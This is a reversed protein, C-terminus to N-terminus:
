KEDEQTAGTYRRTTDARLWEEGSREFLTPHLGCRAAVLLMPPAFVACGYGEDCFVASVLGATAFAAIGRRRYDPHVFAELTPWDWGDSDIWVESRAWGVLGGGDRVVAIVGTSETLNGSVLKKHFDSGPWCLGSIIAARDAAPLASLKSAECSLIM